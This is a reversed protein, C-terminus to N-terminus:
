HSIGENDSYTITKSDPHFVRWARKYSVIGVQHELHKGKLTGKLALGTNRNWISGTQEDRMLNEGEAVFHLEKGEIQRLFIHAATSDPSFTVLLARENLKLNLIPHKQLIEFSSSYPQGGLMWAFVFDDPNSYFEATYERYTRSLNLVTTQTHERGRMKWTVIEAPLMELQTGELEGRMGKGLIHSWLSKTETDMMVM